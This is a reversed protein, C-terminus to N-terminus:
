THKSCQNKKWKRGYGWKPFNRSFWLRYSSSCLPCFGKTQNIRQSSDLHWNGSPDRLCDKGESIRVTLQPVQGLGSRPNAENSQPQFWSEVPSSALALRRFAGLIRLPLSVFNMSGGGWLYSKGNGLQVGCSSCSIGLKLWRRQHLAKQCFWGEM